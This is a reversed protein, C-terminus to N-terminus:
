TDFLLHADVVDDLIDPALEGEGHVVTVDGTTELVVYRVEDYSHINAQRLKARVDDATVRARRMNDELMTAGAMLLVAQNDVVTSVGYRIRGYAVATQAMLLAGVGVLGEALSSGSMTVSALLSGMAVTVAFDFSSMKSFSRLGIIRVYGIIGALMATASLVVFAVQSWSSTIELSTM